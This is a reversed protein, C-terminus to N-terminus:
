QQAQTLFIKGESFSSSFPPGAAGCPDLYCIVHCHFLDQILRQEVVPLDEFETHMKVVAAVAAVTAEGCSSCWKSLLIFRKLQM